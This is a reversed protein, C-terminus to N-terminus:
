NRKRNGDEQKEIGKSFVAFFLPSRIEVVVICFVMVDITGLDHAFSMSSSDSEHISVHEQPYLAVPDVPDNRQSPREIEVIKLSERRAASSLPLGNYLL